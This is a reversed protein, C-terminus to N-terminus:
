VFAFLTCNFGLFANDVIPQGLDAFVQDQSAYKSNNGIAKKNADLILILM